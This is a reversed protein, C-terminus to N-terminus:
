KVVTLGKIRQLDDKIMKDREAIRKAEKNVNDKSPRGAKPKEGDLLIKQASVNGKEAENWLLKSVRSKNQLEKEKRWDELGTWALTVEEPPGKMFPTCQCLRQWHLWTGVLRIAAEYEDVSEMYIRKASLLGDQDTDKMTYIPPYKKHRATNFEKFINLRHRGNVDKLENLTLGGEVVFEGNENYYSTM